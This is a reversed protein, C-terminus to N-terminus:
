CTVQMCNHGLTERDLKVSGLTVLLSSSNVATNWVHHCEPEILVTQGPPVTCKFAAFSRPVTAQRDVVRIADSRKGRILFM